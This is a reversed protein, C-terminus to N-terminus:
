RDCKKINCIKRGDLDFTFYEAYYLNEKKKYILGVEEITRFTPPPMVGIFNGLFGGLSDAHEKVNGTTYDDINGGAIFEEIFAYPILKENLRSLDFKNSRTVSRTREILCGNDLTWSCTIQHKAMDCLKETTTFEGDTTFSHVPRFFLEKIKSSLDYVCLIDTKGCLKIAIVNVGNLTFPIIEASDICFDFTKAFFDKETEISLKLTGDYFVTIVAHPLKEQALIKFEQWKQRKTFKLLYGGKLDTVSLNETPSILLDDNLIFNISGASLGLPCIEILPPSLANVNMAKVTEHLEGVYIGNLKMAAPFDASFYYYM